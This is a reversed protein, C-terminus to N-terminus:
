CVTFIKSRRLRRLDERKSVKRINLLAKKLMGALEPSSCGENIQREMALVFIKKWIYNIFCARARM